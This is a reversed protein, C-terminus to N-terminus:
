RLFRRYRYTVAGLHTDRANVDSLEKGNLDDPAANGFLAARAVHWRGLVYGSSPTGKAILRIYRKEDPTLRM